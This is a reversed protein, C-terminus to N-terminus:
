ISVNTLSLYCLKHNNFRYFTAIIQHYLQHDKLSLNQTTNTNHQTTNTNHQTTNTNHQTQTTTHQTQTTNHQTQTTNHQTQTTNHQTQTTNTHSLSQSLQVISHTITQHVLEHIGCWYSRPIWRTDFGDESFRRIDVGAWKCHTFYSICTPKSSITCMLCFPTYRTSFRSGLLKKPPYIVSNIITLRYFNTIIFHNLEHHQFSQTRSLQIASHTNSSLHKDNM